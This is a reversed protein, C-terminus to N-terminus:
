SNVASSFKTFTYKDKATSEPIFECIPIFCVAGKKQDEPTDKLMKACGAAATNAAVTQRADRAWGVGITSQSECHWLGVNSKPIRSDSLTNAETFAAMLLLTMGVALVSLSTLTKKM